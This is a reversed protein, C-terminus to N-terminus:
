LWRFKLIWSEKHQIKQQQAAHCEVSHALLNHGQVPLHSISVKEGANNEESRAIIDSEDNADPLVALNLFKVNMITYRGTDVPAM